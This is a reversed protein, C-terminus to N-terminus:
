PKQLQAASATRAAAFAADAAAAVPARSTPDDAPIRGRAIAVAYLVARLRDFSVPKTVLSDFAESDGLVIHATSTHHATCALIYVPQEVGTHLWHQLM